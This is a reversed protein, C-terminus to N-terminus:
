VIKLVSIKRDHEPALLIENLYVCLHINASRTWKKKKNSRNKRTKNWQISFFELKNGPATESVAYSNIAHFAHTIETFPLVTLLYLLCCLRIIFHLRVLFIFFSLFHVDNCFSSFSLSVSRFAFSFNPIVFKAQLRYYFFSTQLTWFLFIHQFFIFTLTLTVYKFLLILIINRTQCIVDIAVFFAPFFFVPIDKRESQQERTRSKILVFENRRNFGKRTDGNHEFVFVWVFIRLFFIDNSSSRDTSRDNKHWRRSNKQASAWCFYSDYFFITQFFNVKKKYWDTQKDFALWGISAFPLFFVANLVIHRSAYQNCLLPKTGSTKEFPLFAFFFCTPARFCSVLLVFSSFFTSMWIPWTQNPM